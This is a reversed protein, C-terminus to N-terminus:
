GLSRDRGPHCVAGWCASRKIDEERTPMEGKCSWIPLSHPLQLHHHTPCHHCQCWCEPCRRPKWTSSALVLGPISTETHKSLTCCYVSVSPFPSCATILTKPECALTKGGRESIDEIKKFIESLLHSCHGSCDYQSVGSLHHGCPFGLLFCGKSFCSQRGRRHQWGPCM